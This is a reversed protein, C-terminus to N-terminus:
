ARKYYAARGRDQWDRIAQVVRTEAESTGTFPGDTKAIIATVEPGDHPGIPMVRSLDGRLVALHGDSSVVRFLESANKIDSIYM